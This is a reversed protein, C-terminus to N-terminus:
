PLHGLDAQIVTDAPWLDVGPDYSTVPGVPHTGTHDVLYLRGHPDRWLYIGDFPQRVTWRGHTKIRHAHRGLPGLNGARTEGASAHAM